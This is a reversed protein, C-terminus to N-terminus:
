KSRSKNPVSASKAEAKVEVKSAKVEVGCIISEGSKASFTVSLNTGVNIGKFEKVVVQDCAGAAKRVDFNELVTKGQLAVDFVREGIAKGEVEAFILRVTYDQLSADKPGLPFDIATIGTVGSAGVMAYEGKIGPAFRRFKKPNEPKM